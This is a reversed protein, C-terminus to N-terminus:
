LSDYKKYLIRLMNVRQNRTDNKVLRKQLNNLFVNEINKKPDYEHTRFDYQRELNNTTKSIPKNVVLHM